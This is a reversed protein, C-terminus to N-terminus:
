EFRALRIRPLTRDLTKTRLAELSPVLSPPVTPNVEVLWVRRANATASGLRAPDEGEAFTILPLSGVYYRELVISQYGQYLVLVDGPRAEAELLAVVGHWDEKQHVFLVLLLSPLGALVLWPGLRPRWAAIVVAAATLALPAVLALHRKLSNGAPTLMLAALGLVVLIAAVGAVPRAVVPHRRVLWWGVALSLATAALGAVFLLVGREAFRHGAVQNFAADLRPLLPLSGVAVFSTVVVWVLLLGRDRRALLLFGLGLAALLPIMAYHLWVGVLAAVGYAAWLALTWVRGHKGADREGFRQRSGLLALAAAVVALMLATLAVSRQEQAYWIGIASTATLAAALSAGPLALARVTAVCVVVTVAGALASLVRRGGDGDLLPHLAAWGKLLLPYLPPHFPDHQLIVAVPQASLWASYGEDTWFARDAIGVL